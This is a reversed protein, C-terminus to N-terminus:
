RWSISWYSENYQSGNEAKYGMKRLKEIIAFSLADDGSISFEGKDIAARIESNIEAMKQSTLNDISQETMAKAEAASLLKEM